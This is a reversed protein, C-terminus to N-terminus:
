NPHQEESHTQKLKNVHENWNNVNRTEDEKVKCIYKSIMSEEDSNPLNLTKVFQQINKDCDNIEILWHKQRELMNIDTKATNIFQQHKLEKKYNPTSENLKQRFKAPVYPREQNILSEYYSAM